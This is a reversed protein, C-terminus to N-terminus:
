IRLGKPFLNKLANGSVRAGGIPYNNVCVVAHGNILLFTNELQEGHLYKCLLENKLDLNVKM